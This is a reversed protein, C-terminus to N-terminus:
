EDAQAVQIEAIRLVQEATTVLAEATQRTLNDDNGPYRGGVAWKSLRVLEDLDLGQPPDGLARLLDTLDHIRPVNADRAALVAKLAKEAAQQALFGVNRLASDQHGLLVTASGLDGRALNLWRAAMDAPSDRQEHVVLGEELAPYLFWGKLHGRRAIEAADTVFIDMPVPARVARRLTATLDSRREPPAHDLVVLLDIDSDGDHEGRALSGFLIVKLPNATRVIDGVVEPVWEALGRGDDRGHRHAVESTVRVM